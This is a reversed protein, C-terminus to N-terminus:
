PHYNYLGSIETATLVRNYVRFDDMKGAFYQGGFATGILGIPNTFAYQITSASGDYEANADKVGNIYMDMDDQGRVNIVIHYWQNNSLTVSSLLSNRGSGSTSTGNGFNFALKSPTGPSLQLWCGYYSGAGRDTHFITSVAATNSGNIWLSYSFPFQVAPSTIESMSSTGNLVLASNAVNFRDTGYALDNSEGGNNHNGSTDRTNGDFLYQVLKGTSPAFVNSVVPPPPPPDQNKDKKCSTFLSIACLAACLMSKMKM